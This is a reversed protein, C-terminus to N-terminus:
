LDCIVATDPSPPHLCRQPPPHRQSGSQSPSLGCCCRTTISAPASAAAALSLSNIGKQASRGVPQSSSRSACQSHAREAPRHAPCLFCRTEGGLVCVCGHQEPQTNNLRPQKLGGWLTKLLVLKTQPYVNWTLELTTLRIHAAM